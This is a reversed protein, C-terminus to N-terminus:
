TRQVTTMNINESVLYKEPLCCGEVIWFGKSNFTEYKFYYQGFLIEKEGKFSQHVYIISAQQCKCIQMLVYMNLSFYGLPATPSITNCPAVSLM